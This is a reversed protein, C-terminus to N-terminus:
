SNDASSRTNYCAAKRETFFSRFMDFSVSELGNEEVRREPDKLVSGVPHDEPRYPNYFLVRDGPLLQHIVLQHQPMEPSWYLILLLDQPGSKLLQLAQPPTLPSLSHGFTKEFLSKMEDAM